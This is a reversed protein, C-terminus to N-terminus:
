DPADISIHDLDDRETDAARENGAAEGETEFADAGEDRDLEADDGATPGAAEDGADDRGRQEHQDM